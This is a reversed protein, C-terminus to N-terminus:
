HPILLSYAQGLAVVREADALQALRSPRRLLHSAGSALIVVPPCLTGCLNVGHFGTVATTSFAEGAAHVIKSGVIVGSEVCLLGRFCIMAMSPGAPAPLLVM